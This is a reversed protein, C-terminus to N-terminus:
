EQEEIIELVKKIGLYKEIKSSISDLEIKKNKLRNEVEKGMPVDQIKDLFRKLQKELDKKYTKIADDSPREDKNGNTISNVFSKLEYEKTKIKIRTPIEIKELVTFDNIKKLIETRQDELEQLIAYKKVDDEVNWVMNDIINRKERDPHEEFIHRQCLMIDSFGKKCIKCKCPILYRQKEILEISDKNSM